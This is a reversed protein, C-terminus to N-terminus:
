LRVLKRVGKFAAFLGGAVGIMGGLLVGALGSAVPLVIGGRVASAPRMPRIPVAAPFPHTSLERQRETASADGRERSEGRVVKRGHIETFEAGLFLILGSYYLWVLLIALSAAAGYTSAMSSKGLYLGIAFKGITFLVSTFAAGVWVERWSIRKDPLYKFILAFLLTIVALSIVFNIVQWMVEGGPLSNSLLRGFAALAASIVLSVLLLFGVGLVMAFSFFRGKLIQMLGGEKKPPVDWITNLADQLQGFVGSAGLLLTIVGIITAIAGTHGKASNQMMTAIGQQATPGMVGGISALIEDRAAEKGFAFGAIAIAIVLLPALSFLTYYALAAALRPAKDKM